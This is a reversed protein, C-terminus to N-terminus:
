DLEAILADVSDTTEWRFNDRGFHGYTATEQYIPRKLDLHKIIDAPKLSFLKRVAQEIREESVKGTGFTTVYLSVPEAIGIAYAIEVECKDALDAAVINKAIYRAMYTASRDVKSPDKGSFAGGGHRGMGGYTDVVIKRGTLGTDGYPGGIVFRGTPNIHYVVEGHILEEPVARKIVEEILSEKLIKPGVDEDHQQALVVTPVHYPKGNRYEVTVQCKGDPRLFPLTGRKRVETAMQMIRHAYYIPAPMFQPTDKCAFGFMMGQDGAGQEKHMGQNSNVGLAIDPSQEHITSLVSCSEYDIGYAPNDYGISKLVGRAVKQVDIFGNTTIEGGILVLGTTVFTECAVRSEPDQKLASDLVADSIQDCIKDPHGEGVSESTFIFNERQRL